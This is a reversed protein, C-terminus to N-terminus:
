ETVVSRVIRGETDSAKALLQQGSASLSMVSFSAFVESDTFNCHGYRNIPFASFYSSKGKLLAKSRYIPQNWFLVIPDRTTHMSVLPRVLEGSTEYNERINHLARRDGSFRQVRANLKYDERFSGTGFYVQKSNDFPNGGFVQKANETYLVDYTLVGIVTEGVTSLNNPDYPAMSTRLLKETAVPNQQIAQLVLPIYKQEWNLQLEEPIDIANGPLVGPFFYDFLVRFNGYYNIQGQFYGCPGCLTLGADFLSPYRELGLTTIVGGQSGGTLYVREPMGHREIFLARLAVMDQLGSLIAIGNQKFSTTAFAYGISTFLPMYKAAEDPLSLPMFAPVYGHAYLILEGNWDEPVVIQIIEGSPLVEMTRTVRTTEGDVTTIVQVDQVVGRKNESIDRGPEVDTLQECQTFLLVLCLLGLYRGANRWIQAYTCVTPYQAPMEAAQQM